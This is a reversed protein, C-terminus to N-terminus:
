CYWPEDLYPVAARPLLRYNEPLPAGHALNWLKEFVRRRPTKLRREENVLRLASAALEDVDPDAHRWRYILASSDFPGLIRQVDELELLRSRATILLRLALQIPAVGDAFELRALTELLDCYGARTTWPTFPIFTPALTLGAARFDEVVALFDARTHHKELKALVEDEVTEVATTVFLCGTDRLVPLLDRHARLHEVKATVDYSVGPFERHFEEVIRRAHAPGNLFDPDGFTIHQAGAAVQQRVDAIVIEAQVIRFAGNYVPVVPCHRCLHKCGRSAETYGVHRRDGNV